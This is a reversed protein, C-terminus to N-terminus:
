GAEPISPCSCPPVLIATVREASARNQKTRQRSRSELVRSGRAVSGDPLPPLLLGRPPFSGPRPLGWTSRPPAARLPRTWPRPRSSVGGGPSARRAHYLPAAEERVLLLGVTKCTSFGTAAGRVEVVWLRQSCHTNNTVKLHFFSEVNFLDRVTHVPPRRLPSFQCVVEDLQHLDVGVTIFGISQIYRLPKRGLLV